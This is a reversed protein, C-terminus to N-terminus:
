LAGANELKQRLTTMNMDEGAAALGEAQMYMERATEADRMDVIAMLGLSSYARSEEPYERILERYQEEAQGYEGLTRCIDGVSLLLQYRNEGGTEEQALIRYEEMAKEYDARAAQPDEEQYLARQYYSDGRMRRLTSDYKQTLAPDRLFELTGEAKELVEISRSFPDSGQQILYNKNALYVSALSIYNGIQEEDMTRGSNYAEFESLASDVAAWDVQSGFQSLSLSLEQYYEAEPTKGTDAMAFYRAASQYDAQFSPDNPSGGFYLRAVEMVVDNLEASPDQMRNLYSCVKDLGNQTQGMHIYYELLKEYAEPQGPDIAIAAEYQAVADASFEGTAISGSVYTTAESIRANYNELQEKQIGARGWVGLGLCFFCGLVSAGFALLKKWQRKRHTGDLESYHDLAYRLEACSQYREEPDMRTCKQIVAELGASLQPDFRRIPYIEYPPECPNQGTVLHYMTVGLCYIDTRADTQGMGGFQEPAAYGKTGLSVTDALNNEKYERAIGFDILKVDGRPTLMVNGPKMDRYIIPQPQSHLYQLADCLQKAWSIVREQPQAGYRDLVKNLSEGEIYDMVVYITDRSEIIDVIRPLAPHDLKKLLNAEALLSQIVVRGENGAKGRIEKVAWQKNLRNDMALYVISMGGQGIQKLIEYKGDIVTGPSTM